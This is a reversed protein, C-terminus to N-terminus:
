GLKQMGFQHARRQRLAPGEEAWATVGDIALGVWGDSYTLRIAFSRGYDVAPLQGWPLAM